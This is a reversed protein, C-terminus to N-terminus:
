GKQIGIEAWDFYRNKLYYTIWGLLQPKNDTWKHLEVQACHIYDDVTLTCDGQFYPQLKKITLEKALDDSYPLKKTFESRELTYFQINRKAAEIVNAKNYTGDDLLQQIYSEYLKMEKVSLTAEKCRTLLDIAELIEKESVNQQKISLKLKKKNKKIGFDKELKEVAEKFPLNYAMMLVNIPGIGKGENCGSFCFAVNDKEYVQFSPQNDNHFPCCGNWGRGTKKGKFDTYHELVEIIPINKADM